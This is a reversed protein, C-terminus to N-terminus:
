EHTDTESMRPAPPKRSTKVAGIGSLILAVLGVLGLLLPVKYNAWLWGPDPQRSYDYRQFVIRSTSSRLGYAEKEPIGLPSAFTLQFGAMGLAPATDDLATNIAPGVNEPPSLTKGDIRSRYIDIGGYGGIRDSAFYLFDGHPNVVVHLDDRPSNLEPVPRSRDYEPIAALEDAGRTSCAGAPDEPPEYGLGYLPMYRYHAQLSLALLATTIVRGMAQGHGGVAKWSGDPEQAALVKEKLQKNWERWVPGQNQYGSLTGYYIYYVDGETLGTKKIFEATEFARPTNASLGMLQSCFFGTANMAASGGAGSQYGYVGGHSGGSVKKLWTKVGDYTKRSVPIGSLEANKLAMIMWGSVSLDGEMRPQYRWGGDTENQSDEIFFVASRAAEFLDPDKTLGYAEALALTAIGQDYMANQQPNPGRIDGTLRNQQSVLWKVGNSVTGQYKGPRDHRIGRGFFSLLAASTAAVDHGGQGGFRAISWNGNTADQGEALWALARDVAAESEKNGGLKEMVTGDSLAGQRLSYLISMAREVERNTYGAPFCDAAFIDYDTGGYKKRLDAYSLRDDEKTMLSRPRNSSFYLRAGDASPQAAVEDFASNVMLTLPQPFAYEAGDWRSVWIDYGGMGGPRDTSFFLYQGDSSFGPGIENFKSNLARLPQSRTWAHGDWRALFLDANGAARGRMFVMRTGDPSIAPEQLDVSAEVNGEVPRSSEWLVFRPKVDKVLRKLTIGDTYYRWTTPQLTVYLWGLFALVVLAIVAALWVPRRSKRENSM